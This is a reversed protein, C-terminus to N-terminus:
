EFHFQDTLEIFQLFDSGRGEDCRMEWRIGMTNEDCPREKTGGVTSGGEAYFVIGEHGYPKRGNLKQRRM